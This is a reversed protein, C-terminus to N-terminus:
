RAAVPSPLEVGDEKTRSRLVDEEEKRPAATASTASCFLPTHLHRLKKASKTNGGSEETRGGCPSCCRSTVARPSEATTLLPSPPETAARRIWM